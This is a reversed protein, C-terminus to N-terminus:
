QSWAYGCKPCKHNTEIHEDAQKFEEFKPLNDPFLESMFNPSFGLLEVDFDADALRGVEERLIDLDWGSNLASQNDWLIYARRRDEDWGSCNVVPVKGVPILQGSPTKLQHGQIYLRKVAERRCHGAIIGNGDALIPNTYGYKLIAAMVAKVQDESHTRANRDYPVLADVDAFEAMVGNLAAKVEAASLALEAPPKPKPTTNGKKPKDGESVISVSKKAAAKAM